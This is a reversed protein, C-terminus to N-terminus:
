LPGTFCSWLELLDLFDVDLDGDLDSCACEPDIPGGGHGTFCDRFAFFDFLDVDGDGDCDGPLSLIPLFAERIQSATAYFVPVPVASEVYGDIFTLVEDYKSFHGAGNTEHIALCVASPRGAEALNYNEMFINKMDDASVMWDIKCVQPIEVLTGLNDWLYPWPGKPYIATSSVLYPPTTHTVPVYGWGSLQYWCPSYESGYITGPPFAAASTKFGLGHLVSQLTPNAAYFGACFTRPRGLGHVEIRDISYALVDRIESESYATIPVAYGSSDSGCGPPSGSMSPSSRFAVGAAEVLSKYMHVHLGIEAGYLDRAEIVYAEM